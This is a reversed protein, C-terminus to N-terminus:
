KKMVRVCAVEGFKGSCARCEEIEDSMVRVRGITAIEGRVKDRFEGISRTEGECWKM